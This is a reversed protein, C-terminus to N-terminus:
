LHGTESPLIDSKELKFTWMVITHGPPLLPCIKVLSIELYQTDTYPQFVNGFCPLNFASLDCKPITTSVLSYSTVHAQSCTRSSNVIWNQLMIILSISLYICVFLEFLLQFFYFREVKYLSYCTAPWFSWKFTSHSIYTKDKM